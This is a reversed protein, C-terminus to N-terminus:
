AGSATSCRALRALVLHCHICNSRPLVPCRRRPRPRPQASRSRHRHSQLSVRCHLQHHGDRRLSDPHSSDPAAAPVVPAGEDHRLRATAPTITQMAIACWSSLTHTGDAGRFCVFCTTYQEKRAGGGALGALGSAWWGALWGTRGDIRRASELGLSCSSSSTWPQTPRRSPARQRRRVPEEGVQPAGGRGRGNRRLIEQCSCVNCLYIETFFAQPCRRVRGRGSMLGSLVGVRLFTWLTLGDAPSHMRRDDCAGAFQGLGFMQKLADM